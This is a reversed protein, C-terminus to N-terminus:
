IKIRFPHIIQEALLGPATTSTRNRVVMKIHRPWYNRIFGKKKQTNLNQGRGGACIIFRIWPHAAHYLPRVTNGSPRENSLATRIRKVSWPEARPIDFVNTFLPADTFIVLCPFRLYIASLVMHLKVLWKLIKWYLAKVDNPSKKLFSWWTLSIREFDALGGLRWVGEGVWAQGKARQGVWPKIKWGKPLGGPAERLKAKVRSLASLLLGPLAWITKPSQVQKTNCM